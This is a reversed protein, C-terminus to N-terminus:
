GSSTNAWNFSSDNVDFWITKANVFEMDTNTKNPFGERQMAVDM